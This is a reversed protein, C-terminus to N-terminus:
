VSELPGRDRLIM